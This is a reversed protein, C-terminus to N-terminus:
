RPGTLLPTMQGTQYAIAVKELVQDGVTAGGTGPLVINGLFEVDFEAIGSEVAELKAKVVLALARWRSRCEQEWAAEAAVATRAVNRGPTHTFRKEKPDPMTLRFMIRRSRMTFIIKAEREGEMHAFESAGYRRITSRIEAISKDTSVSTDQAYRTMTEAGRHIHRPREPAGADVAGILRLAFPAPFTM